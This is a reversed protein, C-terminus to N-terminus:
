SFPDVFEMLEPDLLGAKILREISGYPEYEPPLLAKRPEIWKSSKTRIVFGEKILEEASM